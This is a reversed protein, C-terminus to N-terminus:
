IYSRTHHFVWRVDQVPLFAKVSQSSQAVSLPELNPVDNEKRITAKHSANNIQENM